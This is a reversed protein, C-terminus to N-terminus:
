EDFWDNANIQPDQAQELVREVAAVLDPMETVAIKWISPPDVTWYEHILRNRLGIWGRVDPLHVRLEPEFRVASVIAEGVIELAKVLAYQDMWNANVEEPARTEVFKAIRTGQELVDHLRKAARPNM